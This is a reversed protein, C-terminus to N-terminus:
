VRRFKTLVFLEEKIAKIVYDVESIYNEESMSFRIIGDRHREDLGLLSKFRSEHHSSCASGIGVLIGHKELAHLLVEGRVDKFAVTLVNPVSNEIPTIIVTDPIHEEIQKTLYERYKLIKSYNQKFNDLIDSNVVSEFGIISPYSETGSRFGKEQGGGYLLPKISVGKKVFLAGIGKPGHVKHASISYLDVGLSRLNVSIKGFAQVGDSHFIAKPAFQNTLKVLTAIDNVGCK